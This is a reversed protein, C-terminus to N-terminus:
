ESEDRDKWQQLQRVIQQPTRARSREVMRNTRLNNWAIAWPSDSEGFYIIVVKMGDGFNFQLDVGEGDDPLLYKEYGHKVLMRRLMRYMFQENEKQEETEDELMTAPQEQEKMTSGFISYIATKLDSTYNIQTALSGNRYWGVSWEHIKDGDADYSPVYCLQVTFDAYKFRVYHMETKESMSTRTMLDITSEVGQKALLRQAMRLYFLRTEEDVPENQAPKSKEIAEEVVNLDLITWVGDVKKITYHEEPPTQFLFTQTPPHGKGLMAYEDDRALDIFGNSLNREIVKFRREPTDNAGVIQVLWGTKSANSVRPKADVRIPERKRILKMLMSVFVGNVELLTGETVEGPQEVEARDLITWVGDVKKITYHDDIPSELDFSGSFNSTKKNPYDADSTWFLVGQRLANELKGDHRLVWGVRKTRSPKLDDQRGTMSTKGHAFIAIDHGAADLKRIMTFLLPETRDTM